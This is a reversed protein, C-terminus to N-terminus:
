IFKINYFNWVHLNVEASSSLTYYWSWAEDGKGGSFVGTDVSYPAPHAGFGTPVIHSSFLIKGRGPEFGPGDLSHGLLYALFALGAEEM